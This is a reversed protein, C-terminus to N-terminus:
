LFNQPCDRSEMIASTVLERRAVSTRMTAVEMAIETRSKM